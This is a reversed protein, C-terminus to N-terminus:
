GTYIGTIDFGRRRVYYGYHTTVVTGEKGRFILLNVPSSRTTKGCPNGTQTQSVVEQFKGDTMGSGHSVEHPLLAVYMIHM